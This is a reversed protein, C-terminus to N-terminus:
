IGTCKSVFYGLAKITMQIIQYDNSLGMIALYLQTVSLGIFHCNESKWESLKDQCTCCTNIKSSFM